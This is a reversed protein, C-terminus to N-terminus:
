PHKTHNSRSLRDGVKSTSSATSAASAASAIQGREASPSMLLAAIIGRWHGPERGGGSAALGCLWLFHLVSVPNNRGFYRALQRFWAGKAFGREYAKARGAPANLHVARLRRHFWLPSTATATKPMHPQGKSHSKPQKRARQAQCLLQCLLYDEGLAYGHGQPWAMNKLATAQFAMCCGFLSSTPRTCRRKLLRRPDAQAGLQGMRHWRQTRQSRVEIVPGWGCVEPHDAHIAILNAIFDSAVLCDDDLYCVWHQSDSEHDQRSHGACSWAFLAQRALPLSPLSAQQRQVNPWLCLFQNLHHDESHGQDLLLIRGCRSGLGAELLSRQAAAVVQRLQEPRNGLTTILIDIHM